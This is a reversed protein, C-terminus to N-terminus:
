NDLWHASFDEDSLEGLPQLPLWAEGAAYVEQYNMFDRKAKAIEFQAKHMLASPRKTAERGRAIAEDSAGAENVITSIPVDFLRIKRALLNPIGGKEQFIFYADLAAPRAGIQGILEREADSAEGIIDLMGSRIIESAEWYLAAQIYYRNFRFADAIAQDLMKGRSNDFTKFDSFDSPRLYDFRAKLPLGHKDHWLVSIEAAGGSLLDAIIPSQRIRGMDILIDEWYKRPLPIRGALGEEWEALMLPWISKDYGAARLRLAQEMVSEGAKKKAEGLEALAEGIETGNFVGEGADAKELQPAYLQDFRAPELRAVHYARGLIQAKTAEEDQDPRDPNLWSGQWFTAPSILLKQIGSSSLRPEAHYQAEPLNFYIGDQLLTM